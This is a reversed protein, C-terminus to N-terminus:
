LKPDLLKNLVRIKIFLLVRRWKIGQIWIDAIAFLNTKIKFRKKKKKVAKGERFKKKSLKGQYRTKFM